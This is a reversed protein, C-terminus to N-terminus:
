EDSNNTSSRFEVRDANESVDCTLSFYDEPYGINFKSNIERLMESNFGPLSERTFTKETDHVYKDGSIGQLSLLKIKHDSSLERIKTIIKHVTETDFNDNEDLGPFVPIYANIFLITPLEGKQLLDRAYQAGDSAVLHEEGGVCNMISLIFMCIALFIFHLMKM